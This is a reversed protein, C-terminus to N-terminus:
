QAPTRETAISISGKKLRCSVWGVTDTRLLHSVAGGLLDVTERDPHGFPNTRGVSVIGVGPSLRELLGLSVAGKSGHHGVVLVDVSPLEYKDLTDAEADGPLLVSADATRLVAVLSAGNLEDGAPPGGRRDWPDGVSSMELPRSPAFFEVVIGDIKISGGAGSLLCETGRDTLAERFDIYSRAEDSAGKGDSGTSRVPPGRPGAASVRVHDVLIDVEVSDLAEHLGAFHDAHPHSIVVVDLKRVGLGRLQSALECGKPGGDFLLTHRQPTRVLVANGQGVDLVRVEVDEPWSRVGFATQM